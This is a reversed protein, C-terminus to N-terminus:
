ADSLSTQIFAILVTMMTATDSFPMMPRSPSMGHFSDVSRFRKLASLM